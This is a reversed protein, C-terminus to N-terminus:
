QQRQPQRAEGKATADPPQAVPKEGGVEEHRYHRNQQDACQRNHAYAGGRALHRNIQYGTLEIAADFPKLQQALAQRELRWGCALDIAYAAGAIRSNGDKQRMVSLM